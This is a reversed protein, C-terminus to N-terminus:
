CNVPFYSVKSDWRRHTLASITCFIHNLKRSSPKVCAGMPALTLIDPSREILLVNAFTVRFYMYKLRVNQKNFVAWTQTSESGQAGTHKPRFSKKKGTVTDALFAVLSILVLAADVASVKRESSEESKAGEAHLPSSATPLSQINESLSIHSM